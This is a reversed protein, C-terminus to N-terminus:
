QGPKFVMLFLMALLGVSILAGAIDVKKSASDDGAAVAREAPFLIAHLVGNIAIWIVISAIMWGKSLEFTGGSMGSLAFGALGLLIMAPAYVRRGNGVMYGWLVRREADPLGKSQGALLSHTFAPAFAVMGLLIHVILVINYPTDGVAAIVHLM